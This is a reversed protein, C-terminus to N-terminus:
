KLEWNSAKRSDRMIEKGCVKCHAYINDFGDIEFPKEYDPIHWEMIDHYFRKFIKGRSNIYALASTMYIAMIILLMLLILGVM